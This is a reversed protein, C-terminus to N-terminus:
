ITELARILKDSDEKTNYHVMSTRIVGDEFDIGLAELCRWAYFNDNRTAIGKAVLKKSIEKSSINNFTYTKGIPEDGNHIYSVLQTFTGASYEIPASIDM